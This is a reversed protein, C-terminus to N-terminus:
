MQCYRISTHLDEINNAFTIQITRDLTYVIGQKVCTKRSESSLWHLLALQILMCVLGHNTDLLGADILNADAIGLDTHM